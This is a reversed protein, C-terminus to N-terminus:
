NKKRYLFVIAQYSFLFAVLFMIFSIVIISGSFLSFLPLTLLVFIWTKNKAKKYFRSVVFYLQLFYIFLIAFVVTRGPYGKSSPVIMLSNLLIIISFYSILVILGGRQLATLVFKKFLPNM